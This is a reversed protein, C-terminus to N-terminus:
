QLQNISNHINQQVAEVDVFMAYPKLFKSIMKELEEPSKILVMDLEDDFNDPLFNKIAAAQVTSLDMSFNPLMLGDLLMDCASVCQMFSIEKVIISALEPVGITSKEPLIKNM